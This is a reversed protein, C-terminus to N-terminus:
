GLQKWSDILAPLDDPCPSLGARSSASWLQRDFTAFSVPTGVADQWAVAAALQVADYGRLGLDWALDAAHGLLPETIPLRIFDPWEQSFAQRAAEADERTLLGVRAAKALAATVEARSIAATGVAQAEVIKRLVDESGPESVYRKVLASADLYLIM